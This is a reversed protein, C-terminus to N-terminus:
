KAFPNKFTESKDESVEKIVVTDTESIITVETTSKAAFPNSLKETPQNSKLDDVRFNDRKIENNDTADKINRASVMKEAAARDIGPLKMLNQILKEQKSIKAGREKVKNIANSTVEDTALNTSFGKSKKTKAERERTEADAATLRARAEFAIQALEERHARLTLMDMDKIVEKENNFFKAFLEEQPTVAFDGPKTLRLKDCIAKNAKKAYIVSLTFWGLDSENQSLYVQVALESQSIM